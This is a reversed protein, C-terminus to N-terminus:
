AVQMRRWWGITAACGIGGTIPVLLLQV